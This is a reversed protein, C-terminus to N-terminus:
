TNFRRPLSKITPHTALEKFYKLADDPLMYNKAVQRRHRKIWDPDRGSAVLSQKDQHPLMDALTVYWEAALSNTPFPGCYVKDSDNLCGRRQLHLVLYHTPRKARRPRIAKTKVKAKIKVKTKRKSGVKKKM